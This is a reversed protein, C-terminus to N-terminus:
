VLVDVQDVLAWADFAYTTLYNYGMWVFGKDGYDKGWSNKVLLAGTGVELAKSDDWGYVVFAHRETVSGTPESLVHTSTDVTRFGSDLEMGLIVPGTTYVADKIEDIDVLKFSDMVPFPFPNELKFIEPLALYGYDTLLTVAKEATPGSPIVPPPVPPVIPDTAGTATATGSAAVAGSWTAQGTSGATAVGTIMAFGVDENTIEGNGVITASGLISETEAFTNVAMGIATAGAIADGAGSITGDFADLATSFINVDFDLYARHEKFEQHAKISALVYSIASGGFGQNLIPERFPVAYKAGIVSGSSVWATGGGSDLDYGTGYTSYDPM